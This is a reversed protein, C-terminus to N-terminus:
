ASKYQFKCRKKRWLQSSIQTSNANCKKQSSRWVVVSGRYVSEGLDACMELLGQSEAVIFSNEEPIELMRTACLTVEEDLLGSHALVNRCGVSALKISQRTVGGGGGLETTVFIRGQAEVLTDLMGRNDLERMRLSNPAGFAIMIEEAKKQQERDDLFHV